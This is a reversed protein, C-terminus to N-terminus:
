TQTGRVFQGQDDNVTEIMFGTTGFDKKSLIASDRDVRKRAAYHPACSNKYDPFYSFLGSTNYKPYIVVSRMGKRPYPKADGQPIASRM